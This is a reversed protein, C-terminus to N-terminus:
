ETASSAESPAGRLGLGLEKLRRKIESLSTQGFNKISLLDHETRSALEAVTNIGLRQLCKRSRVSLELEAVPRSLIAPDGSVTPVASVHRKVGTDAEPV